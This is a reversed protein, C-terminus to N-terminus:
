IFSFNALLFAVSISKVSIISVSGDDNKVAVHQYSKLNIGKKFIESSQLLTSDFSTTYKFEGAQSILKANVFTAYSIDDPRLSERFRNDILLEPYVNNPVSKKLSLEIVVYGNLINNRKIANVM